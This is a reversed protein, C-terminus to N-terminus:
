TRLRAIGLMKVCKQCLRLTNQAGPLINLFLTRGMSHTYGRTECMFLEALQKIDPPKKWRGLHSTSRIGAVKLEGLWEKKVPRDLVFIAIRRALALNRTDLEDPHRLKRTISGGIVDVDVNRETRQKSSQLNYPIYCWFTASWVLLM